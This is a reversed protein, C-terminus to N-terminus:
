HWPSHPARQEAIFRDDRHASLQSSRVYDIRLQKAACEMAARPIPYNAGVGPLVYAITLADNACFDRARIRACRM